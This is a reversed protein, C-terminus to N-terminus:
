QIPLYIGGLVGERRPDEGKVVLSCKIGTFGKFWPQQQYRGLLKKCMKRIENTSLEKALQIRLLLGVGKPSLLTGSDIINHDTATAKVTTKWQKTTIFQQQALHVQQRQPFRMFPTPSLLKFAIDYEAYNLMKNLKTPKSNTLWDNFDKALHTWQQTHLAGIVWRSNKVLVVTLRALENKGVASLWLYYQSRYGYLPKLYLADHLCPIEKVSDATQLHWLRTVSVNHVQYFHQLRSFFQKVDFTKKQLRRHLLTQLNKSDNDKIAQIIKAIIKNVEPDVNKFETLGKNAVITCDPLMSQSPAVKPTALSILSFPITAVLLLQIM